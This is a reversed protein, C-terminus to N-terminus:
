LVRIVEGEQNLIILEDGGFSEEDRLGVVEDNAAKIRVGIKEGGRHM